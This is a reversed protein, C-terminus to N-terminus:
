TAPHSDIHDLVQQWDVTPTIDIDPFGDDALEAGVTLAVDDGCPCDVSVTGLTIM